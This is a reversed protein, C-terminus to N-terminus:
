APDDKSETASIPQLEFMRPMSPTNTWTEQPAAYFHHVTREIVQTPAQTATPIEPVDVEPRLGYSLVSVLVCAAVTRWLAVPRRWWGPRRAAEDFWLRQMRPELSGPPEVADLSELVKEIDKM